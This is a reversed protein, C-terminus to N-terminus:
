ITGNRNRVEVMVPTYFEKLKDKPTKKVVSYTRPLALSGSPTADVMSIPYSTSAAPIDDNKEISENDHMDIPASLTKPILLDADLDKKSTDVNHYSTMAAAIINNNTNTNHNNIDTTNNTSHLISENRKLPNRFASRLLMGMRPDDSYEEAITNVSMFSAQSDLRHLAAHRSGRPNKDKSDSTSDMSNSM